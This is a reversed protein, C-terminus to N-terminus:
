PKLVALLLPTIAPTHTQQINLAPDLLRVTSIDNWVLIKQGDPSLVMNKYSNVNKWDTLVASYTSAQLFSNVSFSLIYVISVDM